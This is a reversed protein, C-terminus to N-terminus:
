AGLMVTLRPVFKGHNHTRFGESSFNDATVAAIGSRAGDFEVVDILAKIANLDVYGLIAIV